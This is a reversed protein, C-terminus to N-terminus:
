NIIALHCNEMYIFILITLPHFMDIVRLLFVHEINHGYKDGGDGWGWGWYFVEVEAGHGTCNIECSSM